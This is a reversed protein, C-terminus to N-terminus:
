ISELFAEHNKVEELNGKVIIRRLFAQYTTPYENQINTYQQEFKWNSIIYVIEYCAIKNEYRAPLRLPYGELYKLMDEIPLSSRFEEFIIVHESFYSDFPHAYDTIRYVNEYGYKEMVYRTKGVGPTDSLYCVYLNRFQNKYRDVMEEQYVNKINGSYRIYQSPFAQRVESLSNGSHIMEFIDNLDSRKGKEPLEGYIITEGVRTDSKTCYDSAQQVTGRVEEIHAEPFLKKMSEFTKGNAYCIFVQHHQTGLEGQELQFAFYKVEEQLIQNQLDENSPPETEKYNLTLLWNRYRKEM